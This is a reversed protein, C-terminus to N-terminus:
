KIFKFILKNYICKFRLALFHLHLCVVVIWKLCSIFLSAAPLLFYLFSFFAAEEILQQHKSEDRSKRNKRFLSSLAFPSFLSDDMVVMKCLPSTAFSHSHTLTDIDPPALSIRLIEKALLFAKNSLFSIVTTCYTVNM